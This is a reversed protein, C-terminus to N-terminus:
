NQMGYNLLSLIVDIRKQQHSSDNEIHAVLDYNEDIFKDSMSDIVRRKYSSHMRM